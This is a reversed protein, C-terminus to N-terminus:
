QDEFLPWWALNLPQRMAFDLSRYVTCQPQRRWFRWTRPWKCVQCQGRQNVEHQRLLIIMGVLLRITQEKLVTPPIMEESRLKGALEELQELLLHRRTQWVNSV